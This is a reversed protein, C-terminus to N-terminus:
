MIAGRDGEKGREEERRSLGDGGLVQMWPFRLIFHSAIKFLTISSQCISSEQSSSRSQSSLSLSVARTLSQPPFQVSAPPLGPARAPKENVENVHLDRVLASGMSMFPDAVSSDVLINFCLGLCNEEAKM